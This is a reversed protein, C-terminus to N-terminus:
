KTERKADLAAVHVYIKFMCTYMFMYIYINSSRLELISAKQKIVM